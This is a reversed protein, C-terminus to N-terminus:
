APNSLVLDRVTQIVDDVDDDSLGAHLPLSIMRGYADAAVPNDGPRYGYKDRYFPHMHVPLYHVSTGINRNKMEDIFTNRDIRLAGAKLRIV